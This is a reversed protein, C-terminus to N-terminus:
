PKYWLRWNQAFLKIDDMFIILHNIKEQSKTFKFQESYTRPIYTLPMLAIVFLLPSLPDEQFIDRQIKVEELNKRRCNIGREVKKKHNGNQINHSQQIDQVSESLRWDLKVPGYEYAKKKDIWVISVNRAKRQKGQPHVWCHVTCWKNRENGQPIRETWRFATRPMIALLIDVGYDTSNPNEM